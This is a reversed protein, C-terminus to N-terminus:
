PRGPEAPEYALEDSRRRAVDRARGVIRKGRNGLLLGITGAAVRPNFIM